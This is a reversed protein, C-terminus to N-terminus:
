AGGTNSLQGALNSTCSNSGGAYVHVVSGGYLVAAPDTGIPGGAGADQSLDYANWLRGAVGDNVYEILDGPGSQVYVHVTPGYVLASPDNQVTAGGGALTSLNYADWGAGGAADDTYETLESGASAVYVHMTSSFLITAPNSQVPAGGNAIQSLDETAWSGGIETYRVLAGGASRVFVDLTGSLNLASPDGSVTTGGSASGTLDTVTWTSGAEAYEVLDGSSARVFVAPGGAAFLASPDGDVPGGGGATASLDYANWLHGDAGDNTYEILDDAASEVFVDVTPGSSVADPNGSIAGGGGALQSLDYANWLHGGINDNVWSMLDGADSQVFVQVTPGYTIASPRGTIDPGQADETQNYANWLHGGAGDNVYEQLPLGGSAAAPLGTGVTAAIAAAALLWSRKAIRWRATPRRPARTTSLSHQM